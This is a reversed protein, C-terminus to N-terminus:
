NINCRPSSYTISFFDLSGISARCGERRRQSKMKILVAASVINNFLILTKAPAAIIQPQFVSIEKQIGTEFQTQSTQAHMKM